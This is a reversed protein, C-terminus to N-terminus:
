KLGRKLAVHPVCGMAREGRDKSAFICPVERDSEFCVADLSIKLILQVLLDVADASGAHGEGPFNSGRSLLKATLDIATENRM